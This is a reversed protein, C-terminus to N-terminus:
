GSAPIVKKCSKRELLSTSLLYTRPKYEKPSSSIRRLLLEVSLRAMEETAIDVTTIPPHWMSLWETDNFAAVSIDDPIRINQENLVKLLGLLIRNSGALIASPSGAAAEPRAGLQLLERAGAEGHEQTFSGIRILAPDIPIGAENLAHRYGTLRNQGTTLESQGMILGIRQHGLGILYNTIQYAGQVNDALVGDLLDEERRRNLEIIPIGQKALDRVFSSNSGGLPHVYIIGDVHKEKLAKLYWLDVEPDENNICLMMGYNNQHLMTSVSQIILNDYLSSVEPVILGVLRTPQGKLGRALWNPQYGLEAIAEDVRRQTEASVYGSQNLARSVTAQSLGTHRAVDKITVTM